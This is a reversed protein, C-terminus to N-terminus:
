WTITQSGGGLTISQSGGGIAISKTGQTYTIHIHASTSWNGAVDGCGLYLDNAGASYGSTACSWSTTGTCITGVSASVAGTLSWKCSTVGVADTATGVATVISNNITQDTTTIAVEPATTDLALEMPTLGDSLQWGRSGVYASQGSVLKYENNADVYGATLSGALNNTYTVCGWNSLTNITHQFVNNTFSWPGDGCPDAEDRFENRYGVTTNRHYYLRGTNGHPNWHHVAMEGGTGIRVFLNYLIEIDSAESLSSNLYWSIAGDSSTIVKNGRVTLYNTQYKPAISSNFGTMGTGGASHIYNNEILARHTNYLSGLGSVGTFNSVINDQMVLYYGAGEDWTFFVGQNENISTVAVINSFTCRRLTNYSKSSDSIILYDGFDTFNLRDFWVNASMLYRGDGNITVTEGPYAIWTFPCQFGVNMGYKGTANGPRRYEDNYETLYYTGERFYVAHNRYSGDGTNQLLSLLSNFPQSISGTQTGAYGTQVFLFGTTSVTISWTSQAQTGEADTVTLTINTADSQPNTWTIVGTRSNITMGSPANSLAYTYPYLGGRVAARINYEIGPYAKFIRNTSPIAPSGSGSAKPSIIELAYNASFVPQM